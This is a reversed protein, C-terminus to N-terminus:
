DFYITRMCVCCEVVRLRLVAFLCPSLVKPMLNTSLTMGAMGVGYHVQVLSTLAFTFFVATDAAANCLSQFFANQWCDVSVVGHSSEACIENAM